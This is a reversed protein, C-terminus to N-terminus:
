KLNCSSLKALADESFTSDDIGVSRLVLSDINDTFLKSYIRDDSADELTCWEMSINKIKGLALFDAM